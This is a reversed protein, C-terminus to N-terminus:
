PSSLNFPCSFPHIQNGTIDWFLRTLRIKILCYGDKLVSSLNSIQYLKFKFM